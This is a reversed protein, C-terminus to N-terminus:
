TSSLDIILESSEEGIKKALLEPNRILYSTYSKEESIKTREKLKSHLENIIQENM